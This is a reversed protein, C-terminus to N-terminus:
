NASANILKLVGPGAQKQPKLHGSRDELQDFPSTPTLAEKGVFCFASITSATTRAVKNSAIVSPIRWEPHTM